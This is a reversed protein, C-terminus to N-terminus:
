AAGDTLRDTMQVGVGVTLEFFRFGQRVQRNVYYRLADSNDRSFSHATKFDPRRSITEQRMDNRFVTDIWIDLNRMSFDVYRHEVCKNTM